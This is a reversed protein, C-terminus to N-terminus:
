FLLSSTVPISQFHPLCPVSFRPPLHCYSFICICDTVVKPQPLPIIRHVTALDPCSSTLDSALDPQLLSLLSPSHDPALNPLSPHLSLLPVSTTDLYLQLQQPPAPCPTCGTAPDPQIPSLAITLPLTLSPTFPPTTLPRGPRPILM